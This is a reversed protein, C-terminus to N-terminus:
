LHRGIWEKASKKLHWCPSLRNGGNSVILTRPFPNDLESRPILKIDFLYTGRREFASHLRHGRLRNQRLPIVRTSSYCAALSDDALLEGRPELESASRGM